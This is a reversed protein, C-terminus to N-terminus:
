QRNAVLTLHNREGERRYEMADVMNRVLHVGLGGVPRDEMPATIDPNPADQTPDFAKGDDVLVVVVRESESTLTLSIEHGAAAGDDGFGYDMINLVLEELILHIKFILDASWGEREALSEVEATIHDLEERNTQISLALTESM